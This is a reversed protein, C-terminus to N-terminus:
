LTICYDGMYKEWWRIGPVKKRGSAGISVYQYGSSSLTMTIEYPLTVPRRTRFLPSFAFHVKKGVGSEPPDADLRITVTEGETGRFRFTDIDLNHMGPEDGLTSCITKARETIEVAATDIASLGDNDTVRLKVLGSYESSYTYATTPTTVTVDYTGSNDFDWEYSVIEGDVDYSGSADFAIPWGVGGAYPGNVEATPANFTAEIAAMIAEVVEGADAADFLEGGTEEAMAEFYPRTIADSGVLIPYIIAPDLAMAADVVDQLTYDTYPEPDHPPADSMLIIVKKVSDRWGGLADKDLCHMLASYHSEPWDLGDRLTLGQIALIIASKDASFNLIDHYMYDGCEACGYPEYPFDEFSVVAVRYDSTKSDIEDVIEVTAAKAAAIDDWMSGTTDIAFILDISQEILINYVLENGAQDFIRIYIDGGPLNNLTYTHDIDYNTGDRFSMIETGSDNPAGRWVELRTIGSGNDGDTAEVIINHDSTLEGDPIEQGSSDKVLIQPEDGSEREILCQYQLEPWMTDWADDIVIGGNNGPAWEDGLAIEYCYEVLGDCRFSPPTGDPNKYNGFFGYEANSFSLATGVIARRQSASLGLFYAPGWFDDEGEAKISDQVTHDTHMGDSQMEIIRQQSMQIHIISPGSPPNWDRYLAAHGLGCIPFSARRYVGDGKEFEHQASANPGFLLIVGFSVVFLIGLRNSSHRM